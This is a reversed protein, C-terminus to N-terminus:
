VFFVIRVNVAERLRYTVDESLNSLVEDNLNAHGLSEAYLSVSNNPILSFKATPQHNM